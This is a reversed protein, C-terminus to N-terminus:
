AEVETNLQHVRVGLRDQINVLEGTAICKQNALVRVEANLASGLELITGQTLTSLTHLDLTQQGVEFSVNVPLAELDNLLESEATNATEMTILELQHDHINFTAFPKDHIYGMIQQQNFYTPLLLIDGSGLSRLEQLTLSQGQWRFSLPVEVPLRSHMARQPLLSILHQYEELYLTIEGQPLTVTIALCLQESHRIDDQHIAEGQHHALVISQWTVKEAEPTIRELLALQLEQPLHDFSAGNLSGNLINALASSYGKFSLRKGKIIVELSTNLGAPLYDAKLSIGISHYAIESQLKSLQQQLDVFKPDVKPFPFSIM